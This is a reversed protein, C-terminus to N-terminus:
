QKTPAKKTFTYTFGGTSPALHVPTGDILVSIAPMNGVYLSITQQASWKQTQGQAQTTSAIVQGDATTEFWCRGNPTSFTVNLPGSTVVAFQEANQTQSVKEIVLSAKAPKVTNAKHTTSGVKGAPHTAGKAQTSVPQTHGSVKPGSPNVSGTLASGPSAVTHHSLLAYLVVLVTFVVVGGALRLLGRGFGADGRPRAKQLQKQRTRPRVPTPQVVAAEQVKRNVAGQTEPPLEEDRPVGLYLNTLEQGGLGLYDAYSRVFGRAYVKGPLVSLDGSEIALLYRARVKTAEVAQAVTLNQQERARRLLDGLERLRAQYTEGNLPDLDNM